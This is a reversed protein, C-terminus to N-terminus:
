IRMLICSQNCSVRMLTVHRIQDASCYREDYDDTGCLEGGGYYEDDDHM